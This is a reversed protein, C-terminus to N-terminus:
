QLKQKKPHPVIVISLEGRRVIGSQLRPRISDIWVWMGGGKESLWIWQKCTRPVSAGTYFNHSVLYNFTANRSPFIEYEVTVAGLCCPVICPTCFSHYKLEIFV